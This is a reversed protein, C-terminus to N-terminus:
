PKPRKTCPLSKRLWWKDEEIFISMICIALGFVALVLPWFPDRGTLGAAAAVLAGCAACLIGAFCIFERIM